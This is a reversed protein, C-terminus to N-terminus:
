FKSKKKSVKSVFDSILTSLTTGNETAIKAAAEYENEDAKYSFVKKAKPKAKITKSV